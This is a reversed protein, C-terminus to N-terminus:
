ARNLALSLYKFYIFICFGYSIYMAKKAGDPREICQM